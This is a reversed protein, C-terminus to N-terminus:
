KQRAIKTILPTWKPLEDFHDATVTVQVAREELGQRSWGGFPLQNFCRAYTAHTWRKTDKARGQLTWAIRPNRRRM